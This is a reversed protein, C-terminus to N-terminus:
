HSMAWLLINIGLGYAGPSFTYFFYPVDGEREWGDAIDTNFSVLM